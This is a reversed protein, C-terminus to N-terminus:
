DKQQNEWKNQLLIFQLNFINTLYKHSKQYVLYKSLSQFIFLYIFSFDFFYFFRTLYANCIKTSGFSNNFLPHIFDM